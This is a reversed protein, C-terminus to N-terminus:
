RPLGVLRALASLRLISGVGMDRGGGGGVCM